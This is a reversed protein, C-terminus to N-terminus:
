TGHIHPVSSGRIFHSRSGGVWRASGDFLSLGCSDESVSSDDELNNNGDLMFVCAASVGSLIMIGRAAARTKMTSSGLFKGKKPPRGKRKRSLARRVEELENNGSSGASAGASANVRAQEAELEEKGRTEWSASPHRNQERGRYKRRLVATMDSDSDEEFYKYYDDSYTWFDPDAMTRRRRPVKEPKM